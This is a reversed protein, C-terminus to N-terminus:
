NTNQTGIYTFLPCDNILQFFLCMTM